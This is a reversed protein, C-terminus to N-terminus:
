EVVTVDVGLEGRALRDVADALRENKLVRGGPVFWEGRAPENTRRALVVGGGTRVVLDVSVVPAYRVVTAWEADPVWATEPIPDTVTGAEGATPM